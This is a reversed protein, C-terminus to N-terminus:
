SLDDAMMKQYERNHRAPHHRRLYRRRFVGYLILQVAAPSFLFGIKLILAFLGAGGYEVLFAGFTETQPFVHLLNLLLFVCAATFYVGPLVFGYWAAARQALWSELGFSLLTIVLLVWFWVM